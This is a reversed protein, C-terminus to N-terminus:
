CVTVGVPGDREARLGMTARSLRADSASALGADVQTRELTGEWSLALAERADSEAHLGLGLGDRSREGRLFASFEFLDGSRADVTYRVGCGTPAVRFTVGRRLVKGARTVLSGGIAITGDRDVSIRAGRPLGREDGDVLVPGGTGHGPPRLPTVDRWVGDAYRKVAVPGVDYRLNNGAHARAALWVDGRRVVAFRGKGQGIVARTPHDAAIQGLPASVPLLPIALNLHLLALGTYETSRAYGDLSKRAVAFDARLSPTTWEARPGAGYGQLRRLVRHATSRYRRRWAGPAASPTAATRALGYALAPLTWVQSLSRGWYGVEGDPATAAWSTHGLASLVRPVRSGADRGLLAAARAYAAYSLAHYSIPFNSPDSLVFNRGRVAAPVTQSVLRVARQRALARGSGLITGRTQAAIGTRQAELVAIADVLHKNSYGDLQLFTTPQQRLWAAWRELSERAAPQHRLRARVVNYAAAVGWVEFCRTPNWSRVGGRTAADVARLGAGTLKRDADRAGTLLLAYGAIADGYRSSGDDSFADRLSGDERQQLFLATALERSAAVWEERSVAADMRTTVVEEVAEDAGAPAPSALGVAVLLAAALAALRAIVPAPM